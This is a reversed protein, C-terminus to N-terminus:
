EREAQKRATIDTICVSVEEGAPYLRFELWVGRSEYWDAVTLAEGSERARRYATEFTTGRSATEFTTGRSAPLEDWFIHGLLDQPSQRGVLRVAKDNAYV